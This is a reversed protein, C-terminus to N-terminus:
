LKNVLRGGSIMVIIPSIPDTTLRLHLNVSTLGVSIYNKDLIFKVGSHDRIFYLHFQLESLVSRIWKIALSERFVRIKPLTEDNVKYEPIDDEGDFMACGFPLREFM